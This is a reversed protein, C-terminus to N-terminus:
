RFAHVLEKAPEFHRNEEPRERGDIVGADDLEDVLGILEVGCRTSVGAFLYGFNGGLGVSQGQLETEEVSHAVVTQDARHDEARRGAALVHELDLIPDHAAAHEAPLEFDFGHIDRDVRSSFTARPREDGIIDGSRLVVHDPREIRAEAKGFDFLRRGGVAGRSPEELERIVDLSIGV